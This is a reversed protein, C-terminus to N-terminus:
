FKVGGSEYHTSEPIAQSTEASWYIVDKIDIKKLCTLLEDDNKCNLMIKNLLNKRNSVNVCGSIEQDQSQIFSTIKPPYYIIRIEKCKLKRVCSQSPVNGLILVAQEPLGNKRMFKKVRPVFEEFFWYKFLKASM